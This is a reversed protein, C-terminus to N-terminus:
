GGASLTGCGERAELSAGGLASARARLLTCSVGGRGGRVSPRFGRDAFPEIGLLTFGRSPQAALRVRGVVLPAAPVDSGRRLGVYVQEDLGRSGGVVHETAGGVIRESAADFAREVSGTALDIAVVVAIGLAVGALALALQWRHALYHRLAALLLLRM